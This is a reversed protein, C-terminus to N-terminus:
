DKHLVTRTLSRLKMVTHLSKTRSFNSLRTVDVWVRSKTAAYHLSLSSNFHRTHYVLWTFFLKKRTRTNLISKPKIRNMWQILTHIQTVAEVSMDCVPLVSALILTSNIKNCNQSCLFLYKKQELTFRSLTFVEIAHHFFMLDAHHCLSYSYKFNQVTINKMMKQCITFNKTM